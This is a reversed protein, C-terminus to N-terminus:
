RCPGNVVSRMYAGVEDIPDHLRHRLQAKVEKLKRRMRKKQTQRLVICKGKRTQDCSPTFGLFDFTEPKGQGRRRRNEAAFRGCEILRTKEPNLELGFKALRARFKAQRRLLGAIKLGNHRRPGSM